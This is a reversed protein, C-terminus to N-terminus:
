TVLDLAGQTAVTGAPDAELCTAKRGRPIDHLIVRLEVTTNFKDGLSSRIPLGVLVKSLLLFNSRETQIENVGRVGWDERRRQIKTTNVEV